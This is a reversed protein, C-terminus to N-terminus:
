TREGRQGYKQVDKEMRQRIDESYPVETIAERLILHAQGDNFGAAILGAKARRAYQHYTETDNRKLAELARKYYRRGLRRAEVRAEEEYKLINSRVWTYNVETPTVGITRAIFGELPDVDSIERGNRTMWKGYNLAIYQNYALNVSSIERAVDLFDTALPTYMGGANEINFLSYYATTAANGTNGTISGVVSGSAGFVVEHWPTDGNWLDQFGDFGSPGYRQAFDFDYGTATEFLVSPIGDFLAEFYSDQVNVGRAEFEERIADGAPYLGGVAASIGGYPIGYMASYTAFATWAKGTPIRGRGILSPLMQEMLRIQYSAFQLPVGFAGKQWVANNMSSMNVTLDDARSLIKSIATDDLLAKPNTARWELYSANWGSLRLYREIGNFFVRGAHLFKKGGFKFLDPDLADDLQALDSGVLDWGSRRLASFSEEFQEVTMQGFGSKGSHVKAAAKAFHKIINDKNTLRLAQMAWAASMAPYAHAPSLALLHTLTQAQMPIQLVNFLGLKLDFAVSRAYVFPDKIVPLLYKEAADFSSSGPRFMEMTKDRLANLWSGEVTADGVQRLIAKRAAEALRVRAPNANGLYIDGGHLFEMPQKYIDDPSIKLIDNFSRTLQSISKVIYDKQYKTDMASRTARSLSELPDIKPSAGIVYKGAEEEKLITNNAGREQSFQRDLFALEDLERTATDVVGDLRMNDFTHTGAKTSVFPTNVDFEGEKFMRKIAGESTWPMEDAVIKKWDNTGDRFSIRVREMLEALQKAQKETYANMFTRDGTYFKQKSGVIKPQKVYNSFKDIVHGGPNYELQKLSVRNSKVNNKAVVYHAISDGFRYPEGIAKYTLSGKLDILDGKSLFQSTKIKVNGVSDIVAINFNQQQGIPLEDVQRGLGNVYVTNTKKGNKIKATFTIDRGGMRVIDRYRGLNRILYETDMAQRYAVVAAWQEPTPIKGFEKHFDTEFELNNEYYFGRKGDKFRDRQIELMKVVENRRDKRMNQIPTVLDAFIGKLRETGHLAAGRAELNSKGLVDRPTRIAAILSNALSTNLQEDTEIVAEQLAKKYGKSEDVDRLVEIYYKDGHQKVKYDDTKLKIWKNAFNEAGRETKFLEGNKRGINISLVSTNTGKPTSLVDEGIDVVAKNPLAFEQLADDLAYRAAERAEFVNMRKIDVGSFVEDVAKSGRKSLQEIVNVLATRDMSTQNALFRSPNQIGSMKDRIDEIGRDVGQFIEQVKPAVSSDFSGVEEAINQLPKGNPIAHGKAVAKNVAKAAKGARGAVSALGLSAVDLFDFGIIMANDFAADQNTYGMLVATAFERAEDQSSGELEGVVRTFETKFQDLPLGMLYDYVQKRNTGPAWSSGEPMMTRTWDVFPVWESFFDYTDRIPNNTDRGNLEELYIQAINQRAIEDSTVERFAEDVVNYESVTVEDQQRIAEVLDSVKQGYSHEINVEKPYLFTGSEIAAIDAYDKAAEATPVVGSSTTEMISNLMDNQASTYASLEQQQLLDRYHSDNSDFEFQSTLTGVDLDNPGLATLVTSAKLAAANASLGKGSSANFALGTEAKDEFSFSLGTNQM